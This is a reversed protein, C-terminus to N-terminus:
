SLPKAYFRNCGFHGTNGMPKTLRVFGNKEYLKRAAGMQELTELYCTKYGFSKAASLCRTLLAQGVGKGRGQELFYMKKLECTWEDGGQLQAIGGGGIAEGAQEVVFYASRPASYAEFMSDVEADHIAFGAGSAGFEPMVTRIIHAIRANDQPTIARIVFAQSDVNM